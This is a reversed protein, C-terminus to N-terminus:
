SLFKVDNIWDHSKIYKLLNKEDGLFSRPGDFKCTSLSMFFLRVLTHIFNEMGASNRNPIGPIALPHRRCLFLNFFILLVSLSLSLSERITDILFAMTTDALWRPASWWCVFGRNDHWTRNNSEIRTWRVYTVGRWKTLGFLDDVRNDNVPAPIKVLFFFFIRFHLKQERFRLFFFSEWTVRSKTTRLRSLGLKSIM